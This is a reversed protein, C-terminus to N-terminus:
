VNYYCILFIVALAIYGLGTFLMFTTKLGRDKKAERYDHFDKYKGKVDKKFLDFFRIVAFALMDFAGGNSAVVILGAGALIVGPVLFANSLVGMLERANEPVPPVTHIRYAAFMIVISLVAGIAACILYPLVKKM